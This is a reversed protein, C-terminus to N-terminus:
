PEGENIISDISKGGGVQLGFWARMCASGYCIPINVPTFAAVRFPAPIISQLTPHVAADLLRRCDWLESDDHKVGQKWDDIVRQCRGLDSELVLLTRPDLVGIFHRLRGEFTSLDFRNGNNFSPPPPEESAAM